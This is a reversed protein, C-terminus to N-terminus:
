RLAADAPMGPKLLHDPNALRIKVAFVMHVREKQTQVNRPTFEAESAIHSVTGHFTRAYADVTVDATQGLSVQGLQAEPVYVTLTVPDLSALTLLPGGPTALEGAHQLRGLVLGDIPSGLVAHELGVLVEALEAESAAVGAAARDRQAELAEMQEARPGLRILELDARAGDVRAQASRLTALASTVSANTQALAAEAASVGAEGLGLDSRAAEVNALAQAVQARAAAIDEPRTGSRLEELRLEAIHVDEESVQVLANANDCNAQSGGRDAQGCLADRQTQAAWRANKAREVNREAIAIEEDRPGALAKSLTARAQAAQAEAASVGAQASALQDKAADLGAAAELQRGNAATLQSDALDAQAEAAIVESEARDIEQPRAGARAMALEAQAAKLAARAQAVAAEVQRQRAQLAADDLRVLVQGRRVQDGEDVMVEVIRGGAESAVTLTEAEITGSAVLGGSPSIQRVPRPASVPAQDGRLAAKFQEWAAPDLRFYLWGIATAAAVLGLAIAVIVVPRKM